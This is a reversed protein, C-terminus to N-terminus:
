ASDGDSSDGGEKCPSIMAATSANSLQSKQTNPVKVGRAPNIMAQQMDVCFQFFSRIAALETRITAVSAGEALRANVWDIIEPRVFSNVDRRGPFAELFRSLARGYREYTKWRRERFLFGEWQGALKYLNASAGQPPSFPSNSTTSPIKHGIDALNTKM